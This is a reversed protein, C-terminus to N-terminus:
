VDEALSLESFRKQKGAELRLADPDYSESVILDESRIFAPNILWVLLPVVILAILMNILMVMVLLLGM